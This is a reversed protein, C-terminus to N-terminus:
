YMSKWTNGIGSLMLLQPTQITGASLIVERKVHATKKVGHKSFEVGFAYKSRPDIKIQEVFSYISIHLNRRKNIPRLFAKATSCRLGDRLTGHPLTFGTQVEGNVDRIEYGLDQGAQLFWEALPSHYNFNEITMPGNQGHYPDNEFDLIRM